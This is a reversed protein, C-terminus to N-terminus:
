NRCSSDSHQALLAPNHMREDRAMWDWRAVHEKATDSPSGWKESGIQHAQTVQFTEHFMNSNKKLRRRQQKSLGSSVQGEGLWLLPLYTSGKPTMPRFLFLKGKSKTPSPDNMYHSSPETSWMPSYTWLNEKTNSHDLRAHLRGESPLPVAWQYGSCFPLFKNPPLPPWAAKNFHNGVVNHITFAGVFLSTSRLGKQGFCNLYPIYLRYYSLFHVM